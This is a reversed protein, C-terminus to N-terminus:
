DIYGAQRMVRETSSQASALAQEVTMQGTLAAAMMQGVTAGIAQFEPIGAYQVGSYPKPNATTNIPDASEIAALVSGAFPAAEQYNPNEYTSVRTGPPAAVWGENEAVLEIYDQSTAWTVFRTAADTADSSAPIALAWSWLWNSGVIPSSTLWADTGEIEGTASRRPPAGSSGSVDIM